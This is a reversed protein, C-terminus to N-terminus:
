RTDVIPRIKEVAKYTYSWSLALFVVFNLALLTALFWYFYDLHCQNLNDVFWGQNGGASTIISIVSILANSLYNGFGLSLLYFSMGVSRMSEPVQDYFFEQEGVIVFVDAMGFIVYQPLLWFVSMPVTASSDDQLGYEEVIKLRKTEVMAASVMCAVSFFFGVGLRQLLTLGQNHGTFRRALPVLVKGYIPLMVIIVLCSFTRISGSPIIFISGVSRDMTAAQQVFFTTSQAFFVGFMITTLWIPFIRVILKVEEVRTVTCIRWPDGVGNKFDPNEKSTQCHIEGELEPQRVTAAKDLCRLGTTHLLNKRGNQAAKEEDVEHLLSLDDPVEIYWKRAAAILVQFLGVLSSGYPIRNRYVPTGVVFLVVALTILVALIGYGLGATGNDEIYVIVTYSVLTGSIIGFYWWSFFSSKSNKESPHDEDFQDAGLAELCPKVGAAGIAILYLSLYFFALQFSTADPCSSSSSCTGPRLATLSASLTLMILGLVYFASFFVVTWYRGLYADALFAAFIPLLTTAGVWNNVSETASASGLHLETKIYLVLNATIGNYALREMFDYSALVKQTNLADKVQADYEIGANTGCTYPLPSAKIM